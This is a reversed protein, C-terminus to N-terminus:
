HMFPAAGLVKRVLPEHAFPKQLFAGRASVSHYVAHDTYGSIFLVKM